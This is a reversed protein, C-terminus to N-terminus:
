VTYRDGNMMGLNTWIYQVTFQLLYAKYTVCYKDFFLSVIFMSANVLEIASELTSPQLM